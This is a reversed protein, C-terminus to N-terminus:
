FIEDVKKGWEDSANNQSSNNGKRKGGEGKKYSPLKGSNLFNDLVTQSYNSGFARLTKVEFFDLDIFNEMHKMVTKKDKYSLLASLLKREGQVGQYPQGFKGLYLISFYSVFHNFNWEDVPLLRPDKPKKKSKGNNPKEPDKESKIDDGRPIATPLKRPPTKPQPKPPEDPENDKEDPEDYGDYPEVGSTFDSFWQNIVEEYSRPDSVGCVEKYLNSKRYKDLAKCFDDVSTYTLRIEHVMESHVLLSVKHLEKITYVLSNNPRQVTSILKSERLEDTYKVLTPKSMGLEAMLLKQSPFCNRKGGFAYASINQYVQKASASLFYCRNVKSYTLTHGRNVYSSYVFDKETSAFVAEFCEAM